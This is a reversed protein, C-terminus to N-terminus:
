LALKKVAGKDYSFRSVTHGNADECSGEMSVGYASPYPQPTTIAEFCEKESAVTKSYPKQPAGNKSVSIRALAASGPTDDVTFSPASCGIGTMLAVGAVAPFAVSPFKM